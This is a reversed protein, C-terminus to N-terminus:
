ESQILEPQLKECNYLGYPSAEVILLRNFLRQRSVKEHLDHFFNAPDSAHQKICVSLMM